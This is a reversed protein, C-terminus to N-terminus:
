SLVPTTFTEFIHVNTMVTQDRDTTTTDGFVYFEFASNTIGLGSINSTSITTGDGVGLNNGSLSLALNTDGVITYDQTDTGGSGVAKVRITIEDRLTVTITDTGNDLLLLTRSLAGAGPRVSFLIVGLAITNAMLKLSAGGIAGVGPAEAYEAQRLSGTRRSLQTADPDVERRDWLGGNRNIPTKDLRVM